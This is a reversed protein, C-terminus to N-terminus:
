AIMIWAPLPKLIKLFNNGVDKDGIIYLLATMAFATDLKMYTQPRFFPSPHSTYM